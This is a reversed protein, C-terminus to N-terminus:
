RKPKEAEAEAKSEEGGTVADAIARGFSKLPNREDVPAVPEHRWSDRDDDGDRDADVDTEHRQAVPEAPPRDAPENPVSM